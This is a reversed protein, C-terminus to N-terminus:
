SLLCEINQSNYLHFSQLISYDFQILYMFIDCLHLNKNDTVRELGPM